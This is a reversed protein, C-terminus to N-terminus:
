RDEVRDITENVHRQIDRQLDLMHGQTEDRFQQVENCTQQMFDMMDQITPAEM